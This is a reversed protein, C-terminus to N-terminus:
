PSSTTVALAALDVAQRAANGDVAGAVLFSFWARRGNATTTYGALAAIGPLTGTKAFVRGAAATGCLRHVLTGDVCHSPLLREFLLTVARRDMTRLLAVEGWPSQSDAGSLGSGDTMNGLTVGRAAAFRGVAALGGATSGDAMVRAGLQKLLMEAWFNDSDKLTHRLLGTVTVSLHTAVRRGGAGSGLVTPGDVFVGAAALADRFREGNATAPDALFGPDTRYRNGDLSFASLPGSEEPVFTPKWGVATRTRDFLSDDVILNGTVHHVGAAAVQRALDDLDAARLSPDGGAVIALDGSVTGDGALDGLRVVDTGLRTWPKLGSFAASGTFLKETSAPPLLGHGSIDFVPGVGNVWVAGAVVGGGRRALAASVAAQLGAVGSPAASARAQSAAVGALVFLSAVFSRRRM